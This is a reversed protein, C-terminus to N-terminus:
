VWYGLVVLLWVKAWPQTPEGRFFGDVVKDLEAEDFVEQAKLREIGGLAYDKLAGRLWEAWPFAFGMKKRYVVEPPLLDPFADILLQKPAKGLKGKDPLSLVHEVLDHDLFPVRVELAHAMSMQDTDRLLTDHLYYQLELASVENFIKELKWSSQQLQDYLPLYVSSDKLLTQAEEHTFVQRSLAYAKSFAESFPMKASLKRRQGAPLLYIAPPTQAIAFATRWLPNKLKEMRRFIPYGAFLEDGGLGSLAMSIGKRKVERSVIWTNPGDGSPHDMAAVAQPIDHLFDEPRLRIEVHDTGFRKAVQEAYKAESYESEDFNVNFTKVASSHQQAMLGVVLSSDIGGSLFAGFPVDAVLRKAVAKELLSRIDGAVTHTSEIAKDLSYWPSIEVTGQRFRLLHGAQLMNVGEVLTNPAHVTQYCLYEGLRAKNLRLKGGMLPALSRIESAFGLTLEAQNQVFYLPKIGYRDRALLLKGTHTDYFAFAFMGELRQLFAEGEKILGALLVETDTQTRFPYDLTARLAKFNYIEGNFALVYRGDASEMPQNGDTSLDIIALRRHGLALGEGVWIGEADPGRHAMGHNMAQVKERLAEPALSAILGNLGCM